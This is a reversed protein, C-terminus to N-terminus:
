EAIRRKYYFLGYFVMFSKVTKAPRQYLQCRKAGSLLPTCNDSLGVVLNIKTLAALLNELVKQLRNLTMSVERAFLAIM